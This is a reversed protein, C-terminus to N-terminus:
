TIPKPRADVCLPMNPFRFHNEFSESFSSKSSRIDKISIYILVFNSTRPYNPMLLIIYGLVQNGFIIGLDIANM